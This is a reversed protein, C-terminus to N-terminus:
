KLNSGKKYYDVIADVLGDITSVKAEVEINYGLKKVTESTVPGISAFKLKQPLKQDKTLSCFNNVTSSSTFIVMETDGENIVNLLEGKSEFPVITRYAVAIDVENGNGVLSDPLIDRAVEARPLLIQEGKLDSLSDVMGEAKFDEPLRDANLGYKSLTKATASGIAAIKLGGFIRLDFGKEKVRKLFYKVSNSSTFIVWTYYNKNLKKITNDLSDLNQPEVTKIMPIEIVDAGQSILKDSLVAAQEKTRTNIFTKGFLPKIDFWRLTKRLSVVEGVVIISPPKFDVEKAKEAINKLKGTLTVQKTTTGWRILAIDTEPSRGNKILKETIKPLNHIGMLFVLTGVGTSIKEWDIDSKGKAPDEHGTIFAVSSAMGRQTVPIGAYAPASYASTVGPVVEFEIGEKVLEIAEDGGRGFILPDGGKLRVVTKGEKAKKILLDNIKNQELTHKKGSKGVYILESGQSKRLLKKSALFDYIICDASEVLRKGKVSILDPDGPGAGVLYVKGFRSIQTEGQKSM